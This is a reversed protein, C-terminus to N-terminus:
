WRWCISQPQLPCVAVAVRLGVVSLGMSSSNGHPGGRATMGVLGGFLGTFPWNGVKCSMGGGGPIKGGGVRRGFVCSKEELYFGLEFDRSAISKERLGGRGPAWGLLPHNNKKKKEM